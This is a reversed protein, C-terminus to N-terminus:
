PSANYMRFTTGVPHQVHHTQGPQVTELSEGSPSRHLMGSRLHVRVAPQLLDAALPLGACCDIARVVQVAGGAQELEEPLPWPQQAWFNPCRNSCSPCQESRHQQAWLQPRCHVCFLLKGPQRQQAWYSSAATAAIRTPMSIDTPDTPNTVHTRIRQSCSSVETHRHLASQAGSLVACAACKCTTSAM